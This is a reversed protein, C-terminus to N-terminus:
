DNPEISIVEWDMQERDQEDYAYDFPTMHAQEKTCNEVYVDTLVTRTMRVIWNRKESM